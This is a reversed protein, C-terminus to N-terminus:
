FSCPRNSTPVRPTLHIIRLADIAHFFCFPACSSASIAVNFFLTSGNGTYLHFTKTQASECPYSSHCVTYCNRKLCAACSRVGFPWVIQIGAEGPGKEWPPSDSSDSVPGCNDCFQCGVGLVLKWTDLETASFLPRPLGSHFTKRSASWISNPNVPSFSGLIARKLPLEAQGPVLLTNFARNVQLVRGLSVPPLFTFIHQWLELPLQPKDMPIGPRSPNTAVPFPLKKDDAIKVRKTDWSSSPSGSQSEMVLGNKPEDPANPLERQYNEPRNVGAANRKRKRQQERDAFARQGPHESPFARTPRHTLYLKDTSHISSADGPKDGVALGQSKEPSKRGSNIDLSSSPNNPTHAMDESYPDFSSSSSSGPSSLSAAM